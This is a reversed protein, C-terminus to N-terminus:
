RRDGARLVRPYENAIDQIPCHGQCLQASRRGRRPRPPSRRTPRWSGHDGTLRRDARQPPGGRGSGRGGRQPPLTRAALARGGRDRVRARSGRRGGPGHHGARPQCAGTTRAPQTGARHWWTAVRRGVLERPPAACRPFRWSSSLSCPTWTALRVAAPTLGLDQRHAASIPGHRAGASPVGRDPPTMRTRACRAPGDTAPSSM